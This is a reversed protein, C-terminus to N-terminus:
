CIEVGNDKNNSLSKGKLSSLNEGAYSLLPSIEVLDTDNNKLDLKGGNEEVWKRHLDNIMARCTDPNDSVGPGPANKLPSFEEERKTEFGMIKSAFPFVDFIFLELKVGNNKSPKVTTMTSEDLAAIKKHALHFPLENLHKERIQKLFSMSFFHIAVNASGYSLGGDERKQHAMEDTIESYEIITPQGNKLGMVGVSETPNKKAVVKNGVDVQNKVCFGVFLPDCIKILINDVGYVFVYKVGAKEMEDFVGSDYLGKYFGGNGNPSTSLRDKRELMMKGDPTLCPLQAQEFYKIQGDSLGFNKNEAFFKETPARTAASTMIYWPITIDKDKKALRQLTTLREAQIQFLSKHSPLGVDYCGKPSNSGLRTGMGGALLIAAVEGDRLAQMGCDSIVSREDASLNGLATVNTFPTVEATQKSAELFDNANKLNSKVLSPDIEELQKLFSTKEDESLGDYYKFIHGQDNEEYTKKISDFNAM